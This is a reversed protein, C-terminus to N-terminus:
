TKKCSADLRLESFHAFEDCVVQTKDSIDEIKRENLNMALLTTLIFKNAPSDKQLFPSREPYSTAGTLLSHKLHRVIFLLTLLYLLLKILTDIYKTKM